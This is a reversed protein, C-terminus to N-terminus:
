KKDETDEDVVDCTKKAGILLPKHIDIELALRKWQELYELTKSDWDNLKFDDTSRQKM